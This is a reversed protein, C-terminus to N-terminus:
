RAVLHLAAQTRRLCDSYRRGLIGEFKRDFHKSIPFLCLQYRSPVRWDRPLTLTLTRRPLRMLPYLTSMSSWPTARHGGREELQSTLISKEPHDSETSALSIEAQRGMEHKLTQKGAIQNSVLTRTWGRLSRSCILKSSDLFSSSLRTCRFQDRVSVPCSMLNISDIGHCFVNLPKHRAIKRANISMVM